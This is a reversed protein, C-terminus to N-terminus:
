ALADYLFDRQLLLLNQAVTPDNTMHTIGTLPLVTHEKGAALLAQSLRLTHAVTVNDDAFGHILMLKSRLKRADNILSNSEYVAPDLGLYRETYHTDYLTWDTPPAGACAARFVDPARLVALASLYGGYSWGMIAVRGMDPQPIQVAAAHRSKGSRHGGLEARLQELASGLAKVGAVQDALTVEAFADKIAYDWHPGRAGTGHGDISVVIFGQDAWWQSDAYMALSFMVERHMPGGYPRLLVPLQKSAAYKSGASPLTIAACLKDEGLHVLHTNPEFGLEASNDTLMAPQYDKYTHTVSVRTSDMTRQTLVMGEGACTATAVGQEQSLVTYSANAAYATQESETYQIVVDHQSVSNRALDHKATDRKPLSQVQQPMAFRVVAVGRSDRTARAIVAKDSVQLVELIQWGAPSIFTGNAHLRVTDADMDVYANVLVGSETLAPVGHILDMWPGQHQEELVTTTIQNANAAAGTTDCVTGKATNEASESRKGAIDVELIQTINQERNQVQIVPQQGRTWSLAAMYEFAKRDWIIEPLEELVLEQSNVQQLDVYYLQVDANATLARPYRTARPAQDPHAPDTIWWVPEPSEDAREIILSQSDPAWWFGEYRDMEEGAAFEALGVQVSNQANATACMCAIHDAYQTKSNSRRTHGRGATKTSRGLELIVVSKGTSYALLKGDPSITPMLIPAPLVPEAQILRTNSQEPQTTDLDTLWINGDLVFAIRKGDASLSYSVIGAASERARERRAREQEPIDEKNREGVQQMLVHPDALLTEYHEGNADFWSAWLATQTDEAGSSRLFVAFTGDGITTASRPAGLTFRMTQAKRIPYTAIAEQEVHQSQAFHQGRMHSQGHRSHEVHQSSQSSM